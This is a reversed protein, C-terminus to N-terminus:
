PGGGPELRHGVPMEEAGDALVRGVRAVLLAPRERGREERRELVQGGPLAGRQQEALHQGESRRLGRPQELRRGSRDGARQM